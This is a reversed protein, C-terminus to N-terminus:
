RYSLLEEIDKRKPMTPEEDPYGICIVTSLKQGEPIKAAEIIKKEDFIGLIVIVLGKEYASLCFTQTAIGADFSEWHTGKDTSFSGDKEYGSRNSVTTVLVISPANRINRANLEFGSVCNEAIESKLAADEIVIYRATQSNKWSPAYSATTIIEEIVKRDIPEEKFRRISRRGKVCDMFEM